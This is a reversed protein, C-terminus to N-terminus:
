LVRGRKEVRRRSAGHQRAQAAGDPECGGGACRCARGAARDGAAAGAEEGRGAGQSHGAAPGAHLRDQEHGPEAACFAGGAPRLPGHRPLVPHAPAEQGEGDARSLPEVREEGVRRWLAGAQQRHGGDGERQEAGRLHVARVAPGAQGGAHHALLVGQLGAGDLRLLGGAGM